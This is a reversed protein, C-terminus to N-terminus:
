FITSPLFRKWYNALVSIDKGSGGYGHLLVVANKPREGSDPKVVITDLSLLNM